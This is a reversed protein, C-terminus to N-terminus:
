RAAARLLKGRSDTVKLRLDGASSVEQEEDEPLAFGAKWGGEIVIEAGTSYSSLDLALWKAMEAVEESRGTRRRRAMQFMAEAAELPFAETFMPTMIGGPHISNVRIGEKGLEIAAVKTMGRVALKSAVYAPSNSSGILGDISSVNVISGGGASRMAPPVSRMGLFVGTQNVAIVASWDDLTLAETPALNPIGANNILVDLKGYRSTAEDVAALWDDEVTVDLRVYM